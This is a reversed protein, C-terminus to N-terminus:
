RAPKKRAAKVLFGVGGALIVTIVSGVIGAASTGAASEGGKFSYDPMFATCDVFGIAAAYVPGERELEATGATKEMSWELGDPYASAFLSLLGATVITLVAFIALVKKTSVPSPADSAAGSLIEPRARYVFCLVAASVIGEVLGIALHIPQM